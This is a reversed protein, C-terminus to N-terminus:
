SNYKTPFQYFNQANFLTLNIKSSSASKGPVLSVNVTTESDNATTAKADLVPAGFEQVWYDWGKYKFHAIGVATFEKDLMNRRHGQGAYNEKTEKLGELAASRSLSTGKALNEGMYNYDTGEFATFCETGDPREHAWKVTIEAARLM